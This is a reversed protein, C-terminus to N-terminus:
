GGAVDTPPQPPEADDAFDAATLRVQTSTERKFARQCAAVIKERQAECAKVSEDVHVPNNVGLHDALIQSGILFKLTGQLEPESAKLVVTNDTDAAFDEFNM